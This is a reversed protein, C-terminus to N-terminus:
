GGYGKIHIEHAIPYVQSDIVLIANGFEFCDGCDKIDLLIQDITGVYVGGMCDFNWDDEVMEEISEPNEEDDHMYLVAYYIKDGNLEPVKVSTKPVKNEKTVSNINYTVRKGGPFVVDVQDLLNFDVTGVRGFTKLSEKTVRVLDGKKMKDSM